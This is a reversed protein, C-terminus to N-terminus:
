RELQETPLLDRSQKDPQSDIELNFTFCKLATANVKFTVKHRM